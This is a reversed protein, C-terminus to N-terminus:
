GDTKLLEPNDFINGIAELTRYGNEKCNDYQWLPFILGKSLVNDTKSIEVGWQHKDNWLIRVINDGDRCIDGEFIKRCNRDALGTYQCVTEPDVTHMKGSIEAIFYVDKYMGCIASRKEEQFAHIFSGEVWEGSDTSKARFLIKREMIM